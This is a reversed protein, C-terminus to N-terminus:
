EAFCERRNLWNLRDLWTTMSLGISFMRPIIRQCLIVHQNRSECNLKILSLYVQPVNGKSDVVQFVMGLLRFFEPKVRRANHLTTVMAARYHGFALAKALQGLGRTVDERLRKIRGAIVPCPSRPSSTQQPLPNQGWKVPLNSSAGQSAPHRYAAVVLM